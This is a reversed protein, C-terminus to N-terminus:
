CPRGSPDPGTTYDKDTRVRTPSFHWAIASSASNPFNFRGDLHLFEFRLEHRERWKPKEGSIGTGQDERGAVGEGVLGCLHAAASLYLKEHKRTSAWWTWAPGANYKILHQDTRISPRRPGTNAQDAPVGLPTPRALRPAAAPPPVLTQGHKTYVPPKGELRKPSGNCIWTM